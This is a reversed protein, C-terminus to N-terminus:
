LGVQRKFEQIQTAENRKFEDILEEQRENWSKSPNEQREYEMVQERMLMQKYSTIVYENWYQDESIGLQKIIAKTHASAEETENSNEVLYQRMEQAVNLAEEESVDMGLEMARNVIAVENLQIRYAEENAEEMSFGQDEILMEVYSEHKEIFFQDNLPNLEDKLSVEERGGCASVFM